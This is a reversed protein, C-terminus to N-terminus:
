KKVNTKEKIRLKGGLRNSGGKCFNEYRKTM